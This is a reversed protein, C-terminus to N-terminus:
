FLSRAATLTWGGLPALLLWGLPSIFTSGVKSTAWTPLVIRIIAFRGSSAFMWNTVM